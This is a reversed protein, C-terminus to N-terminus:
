HKRKKFYVLLGAGLVIAFVVIGVMIWTNPLEWKPNPNPLLIPNSGTPTIDTPPPETQQSINFYSTESSGFRGVTDNAYVKLNHYGEPLDTLTTNGDTTTNAEGDLSYGIWKTVESVTFDLPVDTEMYTKNQPSLVTISPPVIDVLFTIAAKDNGSAGQLNEAIAWVTLM